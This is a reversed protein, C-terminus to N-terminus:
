KIILDLEEFSKIYHKAIDGKIVQDRLIQITMFNLANGAKIESDCNDGIVYTLQPILNFERTLEDFVDQKTKAEILTDNIVIKDFDNEIKLAKIKAKQLVTFGTTVLIKQTQMKKIFAYDEYTSIELKLDLHKLLGISEKISTLPIQYKKIVVDIPLQWLDTIIETIVNQDFYAKLTFTLHNFFPEFIKADMSKTRFITDDLDLIITKTTM